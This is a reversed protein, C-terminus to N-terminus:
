RGSVYEDAIPRFALKGPINPSSRHYDKRQQHFDDASKFSKLKTNVPAM